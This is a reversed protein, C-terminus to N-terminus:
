SAEAFAVHVVVEAEGAAVTPQGGAPVFLVQGTTLPEPSGQILEVTGSGATVIVISPGAVATLATSSRFFFNPELSVLTLQRNASDGM